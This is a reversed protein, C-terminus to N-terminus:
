RDHKAPRAPGNDHKAQRSQGKDPKADKAGQNNAPAAAPKPKPAPKAAPATAAHVCHLRPDIPQRPNLPHCTEAYLPQSSALLQGNIAGVGEAFSSVPTALLAVLMAAAAARRGVSVGRRTRRPTQPARPPQWVSPRDLDVNVGPGAELAFVTEPDELVALSVAFAARWAWDDDDERPILSHSEPLPEHRHIALGDDVLLAAEFLPRALRSRYRGELRLLALERGGPVLDFKDVEIANF